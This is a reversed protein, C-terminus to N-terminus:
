VVLQALHCLVKLDRLLNEKLCESDLEIVLVDDLLRHFLFTHSFSHATDNTFTLHLLHLPWFLLSWGLLDYFIFYFLYHFVFPSFFAFVIFRIEFRLWGRLRSITYRKFLWLEFRHQLRIIILIDILNAASIISLLFRLTWQIWTNGHFNFWQIKFLKM